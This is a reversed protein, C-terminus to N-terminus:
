ACSLRLGAADATSFRALFFGVTAAPLAFEDTAEAPGATGGGTEAVSGVEDSEVSAAAGAPLRGQGSGRALRHYGCQFPRREGLRHDRDHSLARRAM